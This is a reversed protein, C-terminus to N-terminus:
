GGRRSKPKRLYVPDFEKEKPIELTDAEAEIPVIDNLRNNEYTRNKATGDIEEQVLRGIDKRVEKAQQRLQDRVELKNYRITFDSGKGELTLYLKVGGEPRNEALNPDFSIKKTRKQWLDSLSVQIYYKYSNDLQHEGAISLRTANSNVDMEPISIKGGVIEIHNTLRQFKLNRLENADVFRSLANMPEFNSLGGDRIDLDALVEMQNPLLNFNKDFYLLLSASADLLGSLHKHTLFDQGFDNFESFLRNIALSKGQISGQLRYGTSIEQWHLPGRIKGGALEANQLNIRLNAVEGQLRAAVGKFRYNYWYLQGVTLDLNLVAAPLAVAAGDASEDTAWRWRDAKLEGGILVKGAQTDYLAPYNGIQLKGQLEVSDLQLSQIDLQLDAKGGENIKAQLQLMSLRYTGYDLSAQNLSLSGGFTVPLTTGPQFRFSQNFSATGSANRINFSELLKQYANLQVSGSIQGSLLNGQERYRLSGQVHDDNQKLKVKNFQLDLGSKRTFHATIDSGGTFKLKYSPYSLQAESLRAAIELKPQGQSYQWRGKLQLDGDVALEGLLPTGADYLDLLQAARFKEASFALDTELPEAWRHFGTLQIRERNLRLESDPFRITQADLDVEMALNVTLPQNKLFQRGDLQLSGGELAAKAQLKFRRESFNGKFDADTLQASLLQNESANRYLLKVRRLVLKQIAFETNGTATSDTKWIFYNPDGQENFRLDIAADTITLQTLQYRGRYLDALSFSLSLRGAELLSYGAAEQNEVAEVKLNPFSLTISPFDEFWSIYIPGNVQVPSNLKQNLSAVIQQKIEDEHTYVYATLAALLLLLTTLSYVLLRSLNRLAATM